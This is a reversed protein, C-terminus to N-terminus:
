SATKRKAAAQNKKLNVPGCYKELVSKKKFRSSIRYGMKPIVDGPPIAKRPIVCISPKESEIFYVICLFDAILIKDQDFEASFLDPIQWKRSCGKVEIKLKKGKRTILFDYGNHGRKRSVDEVNYGQETFYRKSLSIARIEIRM